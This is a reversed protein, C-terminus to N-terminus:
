ADKTEEQGFVRDILRVASKYRKSAREADKRKANQVFDGTRTDLVGTASVGRPDSGKDVGQRALEESEGTRKACEMNEMVQGFMMRNTEEIARAAKSSAKKM